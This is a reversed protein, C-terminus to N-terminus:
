RTVMIHRHGDQSWEIEMFIQVWPFITDNGYDERETSDICACLTSYYFKQWKTCNQSMLAIAAIQTAAFRGGDSQPGLRAVTGSLATFPTALPLIISSCLLLLRLWTTM